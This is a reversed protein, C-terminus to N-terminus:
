SLPVTLESRKKIGNVYPRGPLSSTRVVIHGWAKPVGSGGCNQGMPM